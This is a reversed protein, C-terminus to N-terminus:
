SWLTIKYNQSFSMYIYKHFFINENIQIIEEVESYINWLIIHM